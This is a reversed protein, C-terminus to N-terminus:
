SAKDLARVMGDEDKRKWLRWRDNEDYACICIVNLYKKVATLGPVRSNEMNELATTIFGNVFLLEM